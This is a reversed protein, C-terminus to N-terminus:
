ASKSPAYTRGLYHETKGKPKGQGCSPVGVPSSLCENKLHIDLAAKRRGEATRYVFFFLLGPVM